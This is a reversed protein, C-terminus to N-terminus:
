VFSSFGPLPNRSGPKNNLLLQGSLSVSTSDSDAISASISTATSRRYPPQSAAAMKARGSRRSDVTGGVSEAWPKRLTNNLNAYHNVFSNTPEEKEAVDYGNTSGDDVEDTSSENLIESHKETLSSSSRSIEDDNVFARNIHPPYVDSADGIDSYAISPVIGTSPASIIFPPAQKGNTSGNKRRLSATASISYMNTNVPKRGSRRMSQRLEFATPPAFENDEPFHLIDVTSAM